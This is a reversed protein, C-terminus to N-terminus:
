AGGDVQVLRPGSLRALIPEAGVLVESDVRGQADIAIASPTGSAGFATGTAWDPDLLVPSSFGDGATRDPDGSSIVV